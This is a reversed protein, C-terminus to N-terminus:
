YRFLGEFIETNIYYKLGRKRQLGAPKSKRNVESGDRSRWCRPLLLKGIAEGHPCNARGDEDAGKFAASHDSSLAGPVDWYLYQDLPLHDSNSSCCCSLDFSKPCVQHRLFEQPFGDRWFEM